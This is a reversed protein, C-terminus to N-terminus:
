RKKKEANWHHISYGPRDQGPWVEASSREITYGNKKLDSLIKSETKETIGFYVDPDKNMSSIYHIVTVMHVAGKENKSFIFLRLATNMEYTM